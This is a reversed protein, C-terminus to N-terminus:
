RRSPISAILEKTYENQPSEFIEETIGVEVLKGDHMIGVRDCLYRVLSLDHAIFLFTFGHEEQLHRFLNIIQAQISIDLNATPEDAVLLAPNVTLARAIAVRQRQGGSMEGPFSGLYEPGLGVYKLQYEAEDRMSGREPRIGSIVMPEAIIDAVKMRGDLSSSSDQFIIQRSAAFKKGAARVARSDALNVGNYIIEGETPKYLNMVCGALTSKGSGSEGVLGFIEGKKIQLSVGDVAKVSVGHTPTFIHTLNRIDVLVEDSGGHSHAHAHEHDHSHEHVHDHSHERGSHEHVHDGSHSHVHTHGLHHPDMRSIAYAEINGADIEDFIESTTGLAAFKGERMVAVRDALEGVVGLDHSVLIIAMGLSKRLSDLLELIQAQVTVDLSSTPEDAVLVEPEAALAIAIVVRQRQGGSLNHPYMDYREEADEIGVMELLETVRKMVDTKGTSGAHIRVSEAIQEGIKITPNLSALPDQLVMAFSGGSVEAEMSANKPLLGMLGRCLTSKGCGSDGVIALCEGRALSFSVDRVAHVTGRSTDFEVSM